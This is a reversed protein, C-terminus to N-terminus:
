ACQGEEVKATTNSYKYGKVKARDGHPQRDDICWTETSGTLTGFVVGSGLAVRTGDDLVVNSGAVTVTPLAENEGIYVAIASALTNMGAKAAADHGKKRQDLFLPVAIGALLGVILVIALTERFALGTFLRRPTHGSDM